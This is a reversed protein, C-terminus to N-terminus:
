SFFSSEDLRGKHKVKRTYIKKNKFIQTRHQKLAVHQAKQRINMEKSMIKGDSSKVSIKVKM